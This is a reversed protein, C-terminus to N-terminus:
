LKLKLGLRNLGAGLYMVVATFLLSWLIGAWGTNFFEPRLTFGILMLFASIISPLIYILLPNTAAPEFVRCWGSIKKVDVVYYVAAFILCCFFVSFLAWSPTAWIKSIPSFQWSTLALLALAISIMVFNRLRYAAFATSYFLLSLVTGGLIIAIHTHNRNNEGLWRIMHDRHHDAGSLLYFLGIFLLAAIILLALQRVPHTIKIALLYVTGAGLYAWGILGLIGWWQATIGTNGAGRYSLWLGILLAIGTARLSWLVAQSRSPPQHSWIMLVAAYMLLTWVPLSINMSQLDYNASSNVMFVGLVILGFSRVAIHHFIALTSHGKLVRSQVAFPISMGVIFLFAPFVLDVFTMGDADAPLHKMWAPIDGIGALENVFVMTFITIGRFVDIALVRQALLASREM